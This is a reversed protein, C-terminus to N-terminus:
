QLFALIHLEPGRTRVLRPHRSRNHFQLGTVPFLCSRWQALKLERGAGEPGAPRLGSGVGRNGAARDLSYCLDEQGFSQRSVAIMDNAHRASLVYLRPPVFALATLVAEAILFACVPFFYRPM